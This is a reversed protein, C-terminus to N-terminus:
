VKLSGESNSGALMTCIFSFMRVIVTCKAKNYEDVERPTFLTTELKEDFLKAAAEIDELALKEVFHNIARFVVTGKKDALSSFFCACVSNRNVYFVYLIPRENRLFYVSGFRHM